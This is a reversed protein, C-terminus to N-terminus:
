NKRDDNHGESDDQAYSNVKKDMSFMNEHGSLTYASMLNYKPQQNLFLNMEKEFKEESNEQRFDIIKTWKEQHEQAAQKM